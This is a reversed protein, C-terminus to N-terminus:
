AVVMVPGAGINHTSFKSECCSCRVEIDDEFFVVYDHPTSPRYSEKATSVPGGAQIRHHHIQKPGFPWELEQYTQFHPPLSPRVNALGLIATLRFMTPRCQRRPNHVCIDFM